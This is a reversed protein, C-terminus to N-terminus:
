IKKGTGNCDPCKVFHCGDEAHEKEEAEIWLKRFIDNEDNKYIPVVGTGECQGECCTDVDPYNGGYRDKIEMITM